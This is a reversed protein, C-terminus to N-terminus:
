KESLSKIIQMIAIKNEKSLKDYASILDVYEESPQASPTDDEEEGTTLYKVSKGLYVSIKELKEYPMDGRKLGAIYANSFGLDRELRSIPIKREKCIEKIRDVTNM